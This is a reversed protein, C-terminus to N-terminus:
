APRFRLKFSAGGGPADEVEVVGGHLRVIEAVISLGLGAGPAAVGKGRWFRRFINAREEAPVGPGQDNVIVAGDPSVGVTVETGEPTHLVANEVINRVADSMEEANGTVIVPQGPADLGITRGLAIAWPALYEVVQAAVQGLDVRASVNVPVADLRAVRLLQAVLRNMRAVDARLKTVSPGDSLEDLGATLMTLPTRLEHAANATFRRQIAFGEQLRDVALNVANVLPLLESPLGETPLRVDASRPDIQAARRSIAALPRLGARISWTGIALTVLAFLPIMWAIRRAFFELMAVAMADADSSHAVVVAVPGVPLDEIVTLGYYDDQRVGFEETRFNRPTRDISWHAVLDAFDKENTLVQGAGTRIVYFNSTQKESYLRTLAPPLKLAAHGDPRRVLHQALESTRHRLVELGFNDAAESGQWLLLGIGAASVVFFVIALRLALQGQLSRPWGRM